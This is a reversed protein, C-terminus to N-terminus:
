LRVRSLHKNKKRAEEVMARRVTECCEKFVPTTQHYTVMQGDRQAVVISQEKMLRLHQSTNQLTMELATAIETVTMPGEGLLDLIMLRKPNALVGLM